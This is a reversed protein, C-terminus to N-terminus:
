KGNNNFFGGFAQSGLGINNLFDNFGPQNRPPTGAVGGANGGASGGPPAAAQLAARPPRLADPLHARWGLGGCPAV